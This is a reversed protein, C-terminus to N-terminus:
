NQLLVARATNRYGATEMRVFYVGSPLRAADLPWSQRGAAALGERVPSVRRGTVDYLSIRVWGPQPMEFNVRAARMFPNPTVGLLRVETAPTPKPVDVTVPPHENYLLSSSSFADFEGNFDADVQITM